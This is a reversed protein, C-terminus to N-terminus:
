SQKHVQRAKIMGRLDQTGNRAAFGLVRVASLQLEFRDPGDRHVGTATENLADIV